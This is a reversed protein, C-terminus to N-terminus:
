RKVEVRRFIGSLWRRKGKMVADGGNPKEGEKPGVFGPRPADFMFAPGAFGNDIPVEGDNMDMMPMGTGTVATGGSATSPPLTVTGSPLPIDTHNWGTGNYQWLTEHVTVVDGPGVDMETEVFEDGVDPGHHWRGTENHHRHHGTPEPICSGESDGTRCPPYYHGTPRPGGTGTHHHHRRRSTMSASPTTSPPNDPPSVYSYDYPIAPPSMPYASEFAPGGDSYFDYTSSQYDIASSSEPTGSPLSASYTITASQSADSASQSMGNGGMQPVYNAPNVNSLGVNTFEGPNSAPGQPDRKALAAKDQDSFVNKFNRELLGDHTSRQPLAETGALFLLISLATSSKM